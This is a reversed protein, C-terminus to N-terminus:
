GASNPSSCSMSSIAAHSLTLTLFSGLFRRGISSITKLYQLQAGSRWPFADWTKVPSARDIDAGWVGEAGYM